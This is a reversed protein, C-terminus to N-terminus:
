SEERNARAMDRLTQAIGHLLDYITAPARTTRDVMWASPPSTELIEAIHDWSDAQIVRFRRPTLLVGTRDLVEALDKGQAKAIEAVRWFEDRAMTGTDTM